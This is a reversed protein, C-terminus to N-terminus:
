RAPTAASARPLNRMRSYWRYRTSTEHSQLLRPHDQPDSAPRTVSTRSAKRRRARSTWGSACGVALAACRSLEGPCNSRARSARSMRSSRGPAAPTAPGSSAAAGQSRGPRGAGARAGARGAARAADGGAWRVSRNSSNTWTTSAASEACALPRVKERGGGCGGRTWPRYGTDQARDHPRRDGQLGAPDVRPM